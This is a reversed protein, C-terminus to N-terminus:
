AVEYNVVDVYRPDSMMSHAEKATRIIQKETSSGFRFDDFWCEIFRQIKYADDLKISLGKAILETYTNM